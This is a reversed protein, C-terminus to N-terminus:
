LDSSRTFIALRPVLARTGHALIGVGM